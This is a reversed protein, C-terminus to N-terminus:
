SVVWVLGHSRSIANRLYQSFNLFGIHMEKAEEITPNHPKGNKQCWEKFVNRIVEPTVAEVLTLLEPLKDPLFAFDENYCDLSLADHKTDIWTQFISGAGDVTKDTQNLIWHYLDVNRHHIEIDVVDAYTEPWDVPIETPSRMVFEVNRKFIKKLIINQPIPVKVVPPEGMYYHRSVGSHNSMYEIHKKPASFMVLYNAM